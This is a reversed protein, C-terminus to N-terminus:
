VISQPVHTLATCVCFSLFIPSIPFFNDVEFIKVCLLVHFSFVLCMLISHLSLTYRDRSVVDSAADSGKSWLIKLGAYRCLHDLSKIDSLMATRYISIQTQFQTNAAEAENQSTRRGHAEQDEQQKREKEMWKRLKTFTKAFGVKNLVRRLQIREELTPGSTIVVNFLTLIDRKVLISSKPRSLVDVLAEWKPSSQISARFQTPCVFLYLFLSSLLSFRSSLLSFRSSLVYM